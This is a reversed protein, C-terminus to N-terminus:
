GAVARAGLALVGLAVALLTIGESSARFRRASWRAAPEAAHALEPPPWRRGLPLLAPVSHRYLRYSDGYRRELRASEIREKYPLYYGFFLALLVAAAAPAAPGGAALSFGMGILLTGAYLPHRLYAYPGSRTLSRTKVLHGASWVRLLAGLAVLAIGAALTAPRPRALVLLAAAALYAPLWRRDLFRRPIHSGNV